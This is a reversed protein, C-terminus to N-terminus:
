PSCLLFSMASSAHHCHQITQVEPRASYCAKASRQLMTCRFLLSSVCTNRQVLPQMPNQAPYTLLSRGVAALVCSLDVRLTLLKPFTPAMYMVM